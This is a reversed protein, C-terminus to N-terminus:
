CRGAGGAPAPVKSWPFWHVEGAGAAGDLATQLATRLNELRVAPDPDAVFQGAAPPADAPDIATLTIPGSPNLTVTVTDGATELGALDVAVVPNAGNVTAAADVTPSM